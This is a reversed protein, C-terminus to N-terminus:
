AFSSAPLDGAAPAGAKAFGDIAVPAQHGHWQSATCSAFSMPGYIDWDFGAREYNVISVYAHRTITSHRVVVPINNAVDTSFTWFDVSQYLNCDFLFCIM